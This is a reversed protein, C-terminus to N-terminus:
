LVAYIYNYIYNNNNDNNSNHNNSNNYYINTIIYINNYKYLTIIYKYIYITSVDWNYAYWPLSIRTIICRGATGNGGVQGWLPRGLPCCRMCLKMWTVEVCLRTWCQLQCLAVPSVDWVNKADGSKPPFKPIELLYNFTIFTIFTIITIITINLVGLRSTKCCIESLSSPVGLIEGVIEPAVVQFQHADSGDQWHFHPCLLWYLVWLINVFECWQWPTQKSVTQKAWEFLFLVDPLM